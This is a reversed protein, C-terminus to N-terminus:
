DKSSQGTLMHELLHQSYQSIRTFVVGVGPPDHQVRVVRGVGEITEIDDMIVTFKLNIETGIPPPESHKIFAGTRSVNTIYEAIFADFSEFEKNITIRAERRKDDPSDSM